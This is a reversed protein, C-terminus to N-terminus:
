DIKILKVWASGGGGPVGQMTPFDHRAGVIADLEFSISSSQQFPMTMSDSAHPCEASGTGQGGESTATIQLKKDTEGVTKGKVSLATQGGGQMSCPGATGSGSATLTAKDSHFGGGKEFVLRILPASGTAAWHLPGYNITSDSHSEFAYHHQVCGCDSDSDGGIRDRICM